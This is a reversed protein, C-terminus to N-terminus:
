INTSFATMRLDNKYSICFTLNKDIITIEIKFTSNYSLFLIFHLYDYIYNLSTSNRLKKTVNSRHPWYHFILVTVTHTHSQFWLVNNEM